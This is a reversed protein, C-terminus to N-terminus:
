NKMHANKKERESKDYFSIISSFENSYKEPHNWETAVDIAALECVFFRIKKKM